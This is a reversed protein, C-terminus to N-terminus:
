PFPHYFENLAAAGFRFSGPPKGQSATRNIPIPIGGLGAGEGGFGAPAFPALEVGLFKLRVDFFVGVGGEFFQLLHEVDAM